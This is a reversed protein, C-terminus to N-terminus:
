TCIQQIFKHAQRAFIDTDSPAGYTHQPVM